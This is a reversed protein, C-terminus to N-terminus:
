AMSSPGHLVSLKLRPVTPHNNSPLTHKKPKKPQLPNTTPNYLQLYLLYLKRRVSFGVATGMAIPFLISAAPNAFLAAPLTLSPIFTTMTTISTQLTLVTVLQLTPPLHDFTLNSFSVRSLPFSSLRPSNTRHIVYTAERSKSLM